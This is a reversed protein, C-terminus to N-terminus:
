KFLKKLKDAEKELKKEAEKKLSEEAEKKKQEALAEAEKKKKDALDEAEKKRSAIEDELEKKKQEVTQKQTNLYALKQERESSIDSELKKKRGTVEKDLLGNVRNKAEKLKRDLEKKLQGSIISDLNSNVTFEPAERSGSVGVTLEVLPDELRLYELWNDPLIGRGKWKISSDISDGRIDAKVNLIGTSGALEFGDYDLSVSEGPEDHARDISVDLKMNGYVATILVPKATIWPTTTIDRASVRDNGTGALLMERIHFPPYSYAKPFIVDTGKGRQKQPKKEKKPPMYKRIKEIWGIATRCKETILTGFLTDAIDGVEISPLKLKEMIAAYDQRRASEIEDVSGKIQAFSANVQTVKAGAKERLKDAENIAGSAEEIRKRAMDIDQINNIKIGKLGAIKDQILKVTEGADLDSLDSYDKKLRSLSDELKKVAKLSELDDKNFASEVDIKETARKKVDEIWSSMKKKWKKEREEPEIKEEQGRKSKKTVFGSSDRKTNFILGKGSAEEIVLKKELLANGVLVLKIESVDMLNKYEDKRSAAKFGTIMVAPGSWDLDVAELEVKAGWAATGAKEVAKEIIDDLFFLGTLIVVSLLIIFTIFGKWRM